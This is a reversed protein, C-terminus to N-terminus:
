CRRVPEGQQQLLERMRTLALEICADDNINADIMEIRVAASIDRRLAAIFEADCEPAEFAGGPRGYESFGRMPLILVTQGQSASLREAVWHGLVANEERNTRMLTTNPSHAYLRRQSYRAPVTDPGGFNVMDIAGPLVVQPLGRRGAATLRDQGASLFGGCLEDALETITLDLVADIQGADILQEMTRGGAGNAHFVLCQHGTAVLREYLSSAARTTVGFSTIAIKQASLDQQIPTAPDSAVLAAVIAASSVLARRLVFNMGVIDTIANVMIIDSGAVYEPAKATGAMTSIMVKPFGLPLARMAACAIATGSGGGIGIAGTVLGRQHLDLLVERAGQAMTKLAAGRDGHRKLDDISAGGALAVQARTLSALSGEAGLVGIDIITTTCGRRALESVVFAAHKEKTDLTCLLAVTHKSM